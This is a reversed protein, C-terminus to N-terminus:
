EKEIPNGNADLILKGTLLGEATDILDLAEATKGLLTTAFDDLSQLLDRAKAIKAMALKVAAPNM